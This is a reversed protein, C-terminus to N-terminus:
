RRGIRHSGTLAPNYAGGRDRYVDITYLKDQYWQADKNGVDFFMVGRVRGDPGADYERLAEVYRGAIELWQHPEGTWEQPMIIGAETVYIPTSAVARAWDVTALAHYCHRRPGRSPGACEGGPRSSSLTARNLYSFSYTHVAM